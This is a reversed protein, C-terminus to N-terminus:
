FQISYRIGHRSRTPCQSAEKHLDIRDLISNIVPRVSKAHPPPLPNQGAALGAMLLVRFTAGDRNRTITGRLRLGFGVGIRVTKM